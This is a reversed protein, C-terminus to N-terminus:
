NLSSMMNTSTIYAATALKRQIKIYDYKDTENRRKHKFKAKHLSERFEHLSQIDDFILRCGAIDDM